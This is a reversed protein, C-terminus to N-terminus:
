AAKPLEQQRPPAELASWEVYLREVFRSLTRWIAMKHIHGDTYRKVKKGGGNEVMIPEPHIVRLRAKAARLEKGWVSDPRRNFQDAALYLAQRADGHWNAVVGRKRRPFTGDPLVHVGMYKKLNAASRSKAKRRLKRRTEMEKLHAFLHWAEDARGADRVKTAIAEVRAYETKYQRAGVLAANEALRGLKKHEDSRVYSEEMMKMEEETLDEGFRRIDVIAAIIRGAIRPGVGEIPKLLQTYAPVKELAAVLERERRGEEAVLGQLIPDSAKIADYAKEIGGEPYIGDPATFIQGIVLQRKRQEAAIRAQMAEHLARWSERARILNQDTEALPYFSREEDRVLTALLMADEAVNAEGRRAKLVFAPIRLVAAGIKMAQRSLAYALYDGSGGLIMGVRDGSCLGDFAAPVQRLRYLIKGERRLQCEPIGDSSEGTSVSKWKGHHPAFNAPNDEPTANRWATPFRGLVFDLEAQENDLEYRTTKDGEVLVVLTPRAEGDATHKVRHTIGIFRTM